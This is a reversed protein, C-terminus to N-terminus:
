ASASEGEEGESASPQEESGYRDKAQDEKLRASADPAHKDKRVILHRLVNENIRLQRDLDATLKNDGEFIMLVYIGFEKKNIQYALQRRGWVDVTSVVGDHNKITSEIKGLEAKIADDNLDSLFVFVAEYKKREM